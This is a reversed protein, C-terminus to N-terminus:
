SRNMRNGSGRRHDDKFEDWQRAKRLQEEDHAEEKADSEAARAESAAALEDSPDIRQVEGTYAKVVSSADPSPAPFIGKKVQLDYFQDLTMTPLSPYGAGFVASRVAERTILLPPRAPGPPATTLDSNTQLEKGGAASERSALLEIEDCLLDVESVGLFAWYRVLSLSNERQVEEDVDPADLAGPSFIKKELAQKEKYQRIKEERQRAADTVSQPGRMQKLTAPTDNEDGSPRKCQPVNPIGYSALLQFFERYFKEALRLSCLRDETKQSLFFASFAPLTLYRISASSLDDLSENKSFLQLENIMEAAKQCLSYGSLVLEQCKGDCSPGSYNRFKNYTNFIENFVSPLSCDAAM